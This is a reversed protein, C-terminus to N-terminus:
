GQAGFAGGVPNMHLDGVTYCPAGVNVPMVGFVDKVSLVGFVDKSHTYSRIRYVITTYRCRPAGSKVFPRGRFGSVAAVCMSRHVGDVPRRGRSTAGMQRRGQKSDM